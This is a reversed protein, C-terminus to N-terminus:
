IKAKIKAFRCEIDPDVKVWAGSIEVEFTAKYRLRLEHLGVRNLSADLPGTKHANGAATPLTLISRFFPNKPIEPLRRGSAAAPAHPITIDLVKFPLRSRYIVYNAKRQSLTVVTKEHDGEGHKYLRGDICSLPTLVGGSATKADEEPILIDAEEFETPTETRCTNELEQRPAVHLWVDKASGWSPEFTPDIQRVCGAFTVATLTVAV